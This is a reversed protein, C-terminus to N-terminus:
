NKRYKKLGNAVAKMLEAAPRSHSKGVLYTASIPVKLPKGCGRLIILQREHSNVLHRPLVGAGVGKLILNLVAQPQAVIARTNLEAHNAKAHFKLWNRIVPANELYAIYALQEYFSRKNEIKPVTKLYAATACLEHVENHVVETALRKHRSFADVYAFDIEGEIVLRTVDDSVGFVIEVTVFPHDNLFQSIIPLILSNGFESPMGVRVRGILQEDIKTIQWLTEELVSFGRQCKENLTTAVGTPVLKKKYRDFLKIGLSDEFAKIHQSVGSQTLHLEDAAKTMSRTRYVAEFVRLHNLNIRDILMNFLM